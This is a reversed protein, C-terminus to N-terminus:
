CGSRLYPDHHCGRKVQDFCNTSRDRGGTGPPCNGGQGTAILAGATLSNVGSALARRMLGHQDMFLTAEVDDSFLYGYSTVNNKKETTAAAAALNEHPLQILQLLVSLFVVALFGTMKM